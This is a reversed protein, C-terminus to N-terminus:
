FKLEESQIQLSAFHSWRSTVRFSSTWHTLAQAHVGHAFSSAYNHRGQMKHVNVPGGSSGLAGRCLGCGNVAHDCKM